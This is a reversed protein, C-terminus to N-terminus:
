FGQRDETWQFYTDTNYIGHSQYRKKKISARVGIPFERELLLIKFQKSYVIKEGKGAKKADIEFPAPKGASLREVGAGNVKCKHARGVAKCDLIM